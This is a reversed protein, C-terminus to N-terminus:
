EDCAACKGIKYAVIAGVIEAIYVMDHPWEVDECPAAVELVM